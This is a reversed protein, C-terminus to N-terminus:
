GCCLCGRARTSSRRRAFTSRLYFIAPPPASPYPRRARLATPGTERAARAESRAGHVRPLRRLPQPVRHGRAGVLRQVLRAVGVRQHQQEGRLHLGRLGLDEGNRQVRPLGDCPVPSAPTPPPPTTQQAQAARKRQGTARRVYFPAGPTYRRTCGDHANIIRGATDRRPALNSFTVLTAGCLSGLAIAAAFLLAAPKNMKQAPPPPPFPPRGAGAPRRRRRRRRRARVAFNPAQSAAAQTALGWAEVSRM